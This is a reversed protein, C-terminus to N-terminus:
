RAASSSFLKKREEPTLPIGIGALTEGVTVVRRRTEDAECVLGTYPSEVRHMKGTGLDTITGLPKRERVRRGLGLASTREFIGSTRAKVLKIRVFPRKGTAALKRQKAYRPADALHKLIGNAVQTIQANSIRSDHPLEILMYTVNSEALASSLTGHLQWSKESHEVRVVDPNLADVMRSGYSSSGFGTQILGATTYAHLDIVYAHERALGLLADALELLPRGDNKGSFSRNLDAGSLPDQRSRLLSALSHAIPVVTLTGQFRRLRRLVEAIVLTGSREDGHIGSLLLTKPDGHGINLTPLFLEIGATKLIVLKKRQM